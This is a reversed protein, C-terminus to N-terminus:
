LLALAGGLLVLAIAIRQTGRHKAQAAQIQKLLATRLKRNEAQAGKEADEVIDVMANFADAEASSVGQTDIRPVKKEMIRDLEGIHIELGRLKSAVADGRLDLFLVASGLLALLGGVKDLWELHFLNLM